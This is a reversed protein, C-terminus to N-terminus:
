RARSLRVAVRSRQVPEPYVDILDVAVKPAPVDIGQAALEGAAKQLLEAVRLSVDPLAEIDVGREFRHSAETHLGLRRSTKRIAVPAFYAVEVVVSTTDDAVETNAGGMIGALGIPGEGDCILIDDTELAR